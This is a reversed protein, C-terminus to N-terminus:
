ANTEGAISLHNRIWITLGGLLFFESAYTAVIVGNIGYPGILALNLAINLAGAAIIFRNRTNQFGAGTLAEAAMLAPLHILPIVSMWRIVGITDAYGEGLIDDVLPAVAFLAAGAAAAYASVPIMLRKAYAWTGQLGDAAGKAFFRPYTAALVAYLPTAALGLVRNGASYIGTLFDGNTTRVLMQKDIDGLVIGSVQTLSFPFGERCIQKSEAISFRPRGVVSVLVLSSVAGSGLSAALLAWGVAVLTPEDLGFFVFAVSVARLATWLVTLLAAQPFRDLAQLAQAVPVSISIGLFEALALLLIAQAGMRPVALDGLMALLVSWVVALTVGPLMAAGWSASALSRDVSVRKVVIHSTGLTVFAGLLLFLALAAAYLGYQREELYRALMFFVVVAGVTRTGTALISWATDHRLSRRRPSQDTDNVTTTM